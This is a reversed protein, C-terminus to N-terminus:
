RISLKLMHSYQKYLKTSEHTATLKADIFKQIDADIIKLNQKWINESDIQKQYELDKVFDNTIILAESANPLNM